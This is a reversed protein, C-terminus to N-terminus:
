IINKNSIMVIIKNNSLDYSFTDINFFQLRSIDNIEIIELKKCNFFALYFIETVNQPISICKLSSASFARNKISKLRSNETFIVYELNECGYFAGEDIETLNVPALFKKIASSAFADKCIKNLKSNNSFEVEQLNYCSYFTNECIKTLNSPIVIKILSSWAFAYSDISKLKSNPEFEVKQLSSCNSFAYKCIREIKFPIKIKKLGTFNFSHQKISSLNTNQSFDIKQLNKCNNFAYPAIEKIFPFITATEIKSSGFLIIDFIDSKLYMKGLLYKSQYYLFNNNSTDINITTLNEIGALFGDQLDLVSSPISIKKLNTHYFAKKGIIQLKSDKPFEIKEFNTCLLFAKEEIQILTSPISINEIYTKKFACRGISKLKTNASFEIKKLKTCEQFAGESIRVILPPISISELSSLNFANKGISKLKSDNKFEVKKLNFCNSFAKEGIRKVSSPITISELHSKYFAFNEIAKLQTDNPFSIHKLKKCSEFAYPAIKKIFSPIMAEEINRRAFLLVDYEKSEKYEKGILFNNEYILFNPNNSDFSIENLKESECFFDAKFHDFNSPFIVKKLSICSLSSKEILTIKSDNPFQISYVGNSNKFANECIQTVFFKKRKFKISSPIIIDGKAKVNHYLIATKEEENLIYSLGNQTVEKKILIELKKLNGDQCGKFLQQHIPSLKFCTGLQSSNFLIHIIQGFKKQNQCFNSHLNNLKAKLKQNKNILSLNFSNKTKIQYLQILEKIIDFEESLEEFEYFNYSNIGPTKKNILYKIFSEFTDNSVNSKVKYLKKTNLVNYINKKFLYASDAQIEFITDNLSLFFRKENQM